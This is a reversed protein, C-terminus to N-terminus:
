SVHQPFTTLEGHPLVGAHNQQGPARGFAVYKGFTESLVFYEGPGSKATEICGPWWGSDRSLSVSVCQQGKDGTCAGRDDGLHNTVWQLGGSTIESLDHNELLYLGIEKHRFWVYM